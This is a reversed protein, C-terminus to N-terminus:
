WRMWALRTSFYTGHCHVELQSSIAICTIMLIPWCTCSNAVLGESIKLGRGPKNSNRKKRQALVGRALLAETAISVSKEDRAHLIKAGTEVDYRDHPTGFVM